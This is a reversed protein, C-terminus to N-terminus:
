PDGYLIKCDCSSPMNGFYGDFVLINGLQELSDVLPTTNHLVYYMTRYGHASLRVCHSNIQNRIKDLWFNALTQLSVLMSSFLEIQQTTSDNQKLLYDLLQHKLSMTKTFYRCESSSDDVIKRMISSTINNITTNTLNIAFTGNSTKAGKSIRSAACFAAVTKNEAETRTPIDELSHLISCSQVTYTVLFVILFKLIPM